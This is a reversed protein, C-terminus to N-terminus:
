LAAQTSNDMGRLLRDKKAASTFPREIVDGELRLNLADGIPIRQQSGGIVVPQRREQSGCDHPSTRIRDGIGDKM